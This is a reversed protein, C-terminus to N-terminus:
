KFNVQVPGRSIKRSSYTHRQKKKVRDSRRWGARRRLRLQWLVSAEMRETGLWKAGDGASATELFVLVSSCGARQRRESGVKGASLGERGALGAQRTLM